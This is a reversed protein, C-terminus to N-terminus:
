ARADDHEKDRAQSKHPEPGSLHLTEPRRDERRERENVEGQGSREPRDLLREERGAAEQCLLCGVGAVGALAPHSVEAGRKRLPSLVREEAAPVSRAPHAGRADVSLDQVVLPESRQELGAQEAKDGPEPEHRTRAVSRVLQALRGDVWPQSIVASAAETAEKATPIIKKSANANMWTVSSNKTRM